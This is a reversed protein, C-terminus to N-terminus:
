PHEPGARGVLGGTVIHSLRTLQQDPEILAVHGGGEAPLPTTDDGIEVLGALGITTEAVKETAAVFTAYATQARAMQARANM